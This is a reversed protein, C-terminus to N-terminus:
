QLSAVKSLFLAVTADVSIEKTVAVSLYANEGGRRHIKEILPLKKAM